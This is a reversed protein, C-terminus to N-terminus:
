SMDAISHNEYKGVLFFSSDRLQKSKKKGGEYCGSM